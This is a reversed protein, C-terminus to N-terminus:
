VPPLRDFPDLVPVGLPAFHRLNRSLITLSHQQATAAIIIDTLGGAQGQARARDSLGGAIRATLMDFVLVRDGYLHLITELWAALLESKRTARERRLKAIGGEIEAVTVVSLSLLASHDDMWAVLELPALCALAGASIVNTDVLYAPL